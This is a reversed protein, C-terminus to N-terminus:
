KVNNTKFYAITSILFYICIIPFLSIFIYNGYNPIRNQLPEAFGSNYILMSVLVSFSFLILRLIWKRMSWPTILELILILIFPLNLWLQVPNEYIYCNRWGIESDYVSSYPLIFLGILLGYIGIKLYTSITHSWHHKITKNMVFYPIQMDM